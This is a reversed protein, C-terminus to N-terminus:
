TDLAKFIDICKSGIIRRSPNYVISIVWSTCLSKHAFINVTADNTM